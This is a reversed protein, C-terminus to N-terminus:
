ARSLCGRLGELGRSVLHETKKTTWGLLRGAEPVTYGQLFLTVALRRPQPLRGLCDTIGRDIERSTRELVDVVRKSAPCLNAANFVALAPPMLFEQRVRAWFAESDDQSSLSATSSWAPAPLLTASGGLALLRAIDRRSWRAASM